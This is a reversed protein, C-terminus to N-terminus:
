GGGGSFPVAAAAACHSAATSRCCIALPLPWAAKDRPEFQGAACGPAEVQSLACARSPKGLKPALCSHLQQQHLAASIHVAFLVAIQGKNGEAVDQLDQLSHGAMGPGCVGVHAQPLLQRQLLCLVSDGLVAHGCVRRQQAQFGLGRVRVQRHQHVDEGVGLVCRVNLASASGCRAHHPQARGRQLAKCLNAACDLGVRLVDCLM